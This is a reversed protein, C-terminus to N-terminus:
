HVSFIVLFKKTCEFPTTMALVENFETYVGRLLRARLTMGFATLFRFRIAEDSQEECLCNKNHMTLWDFQYLMMWPSAVM